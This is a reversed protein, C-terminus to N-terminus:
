QLLCGETPEANALQSPPPVVSWAIGERTVEGLVFAPPQTGRERADRVRCQADLVTIIQDQGDPILRTDGAEIRYFRREGGPVTASVVVADGTRNHIGVQAPRFSLWFAELQPRFLIWAVVAAVVGLVLLRGALLFTLWIRWPRPSSARGRRRDAV